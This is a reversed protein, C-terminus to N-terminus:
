ARIERFPLEVTVLAEAGDREFDLRAADGHLVRLRERANALGIGAGATATGAPPADNRIELSLRDGKRQASIRLRGSKALRALGHTAANEVLPQLMMNPVSADWASEEVALEITPPEPLVLTYLDLCTRAFAIEERLAVEPPHERLAARLLESLQSIAQDARAPDRYGLASIANLANFLFHPNLRAQLAELEARALLRDRLREREVYARAQGIAAVAVYTPVSYLATILVGPALASANGGGGLLLLPLLRGALALLPVAAVGIGAHVLLRAAHGRTVPFRRALRLFLPTAAMWPLFGILVFLFVRLDLLSPRAQGTQGVMATPPTWALALLLWGGVVGVVLPLRDRAAGGREMTAAYCLRVIQRITSRLGSGAAKQM